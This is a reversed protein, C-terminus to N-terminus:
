IGYLAKKAHPCLLTCVSDVDCWWSRYDCGYKNFFVEFLLGLHVHFAVIVYLMGHYPVALFPWYNDSNISMWFVLVTEEAVIGTVIIVYM